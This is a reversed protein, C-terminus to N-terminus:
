RTVKPRALTLNAEHADPSDGVFVALDVV